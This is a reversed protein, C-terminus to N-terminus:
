SNGMKYRVKKILTQYRNVTYSANNIEV